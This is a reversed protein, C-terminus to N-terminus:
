SVTGGTLTLFEIGERRGLMQVGVIDRVQSKYVLRRLKRVDVLEPDLDRRYGVRWREEHPASTQSSVYRERSSADFVDVKEAWVTVLATWPGDTPAGSGDVADATPRSQVVVRRDRKGADVFM